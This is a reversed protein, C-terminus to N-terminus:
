SLCDAMTQAMGRLATAYADPGLPVDAGTGDILATKATTGDTLLTAWAPDTERDTLVCVVEGSEMLARLDAVHSASPDSADAEAIIGASPLDFRAEFYQYGDHPLIFGRGKVPALIAAIEDHLAIMDAVITAANTGYTAANAADMAGLKAAIAATWDAAALPDLWVHPDYDGDHGHDHGHDHAHGGERLELLPAGGEAILRLEPTDPALDAVADGLWPMLEPGAWILLEAETISRADTVTMAYNHPEAGPALLVDPVGAGEMVAAVLSHVPAFDTLVQPADAFAAAPLSLSTLLAVTKHM